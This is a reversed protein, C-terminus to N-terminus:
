KNQTDEQLYRNDDRIVKPVLTRPAISVPDYICRGSAADYRMEVKGILPFDKRFPHGVFGYDTLIRRLDPHNNFLIGFLDFAEREYWNAAPWISTCSEIMMSEEHIFTKVRVRWNHKLSLLHYVVAFRPKNWPVVREGTKDVARSFGTLTSEETAWESIGYKLYDVAAIDILQDFHLDKEDRLKLLVSQLYDPSVELSIMGFNETLDSIESNLCAKITNLLLSNDV